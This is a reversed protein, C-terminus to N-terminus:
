PAAPGGDPPAKFGPNKFGAARCVDVVQFMGAWKLRGDGQLNIDDKNALAERVKKLHDRLAKLDKVPTEAGNQVVALQSIIGDNVGDHQTKVVVTLEAELKPEEDGPSPATADGKAEAPMPLSMQMQGEMSSPEYMLVFLFLLQFAFDLFPTITWALNVGGEDPAGHRRNKM